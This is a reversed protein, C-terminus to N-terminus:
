RNEMEREKMADQLAKADKLPAILNVIIFIKWIIGGVIAQFYGIGGDLMGNVFVVLLVYALYVTLGTVVATYPKKKTWLALAIFIGSVVFAFGFSIADFGEGARAMAIMESIFVIAAAVYLATRAKKMGKQYGEIEENRLDSALKSIVDQELEKQKMDAEENAFLHQEPNPNEKKEPEM